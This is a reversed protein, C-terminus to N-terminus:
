RKVIQAELKSDGVVRIRVVKRKGLYNKINTTESNEDKRVEVNPIFEVGDSQLSGQYINTLIKLVENANDATRIVPVQGKLEVVDVLLRAMVEKSNQIQADTYEQKPAEKTETIKKPKAREQAVEREKLIYKKLDNLSNDQNYDGNWGQKYLDREAHGIFLVLTRYEDQSTENILQIIRKALKNRSNKKDSAIKNLEEILLPMRANYKLM